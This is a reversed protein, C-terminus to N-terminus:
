YISMSTYMDIYRNFLLEAVLFGDAFNRIHSLSLTKVDRARSAWREVQVSLEIIARVTRTNGADEDFEEMEVIAANMPGMVHITFFRYAASETGLKMNTLEYSEM